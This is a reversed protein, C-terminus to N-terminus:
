SAHAGAPRGLRIELLAHSTGILHCLTKFPWVTRGYTAQHKLVRLLILSTEMVAVQSSASRNLVFTTELSATM